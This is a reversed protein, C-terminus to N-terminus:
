HTYDYLGKLFIEPNIVDGIFMLQWDGTVNQLKFATQFRCIDNLKELLGDETLRFSSSLDPYDETKILPAPSIYCEKRNGMMLEAAAYGIVNSPLSERDELTSHYEKDEENYSILDLSPFPSSLNDKMLKNIAAPM